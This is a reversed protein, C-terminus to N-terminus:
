QSYHNLYPIKYLLYYTDPENYYFLHINRPPPFALAYCSQDFIHKSMRCNNDTRFLIGNNLPPDMIVGSTNKRTRRTERKMFFIFSHHILDWCCGVVVVHLVFSSEKAPQHMLYHVLVIASGVRKLENAAMLVM